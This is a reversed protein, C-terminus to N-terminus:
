LRYKWPNIDDRIWDAMEPGNIDVVHPGLQDLATIGLLRMSTELEDTM